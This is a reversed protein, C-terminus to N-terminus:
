VAWIYQMQEKHTHKAAYDRVFLDIITNAHLNDNMQLFM